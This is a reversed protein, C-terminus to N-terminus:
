PECIESYAFLLPIEKNILLQANTFSDKEREPYPLNSDIVYYWEKDIEEGEEEAKAIQRFAEALAPVVLINYATWPAKKFLANHPHVGAQTIPYRVIIKNTNLDFSVPKTHNEEPVFSFINGIGLKEYKKEIPVNVKGVIGIIDYKEVSFIEGEFDANFSIDTYDTLANLAVIFCEIEIKNALQDENIHFVKGPDLFCWTKFTSSCYIKYLVGAVNKGILRSFYENNIEVRKINFDITKSAANRGVSLDLLFEGKIDDGLGLVPHPFSFNVVNM